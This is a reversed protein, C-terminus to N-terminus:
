RNELKAIRETLRLEVTGSLETIESRIMHRSDVIREDVTATEGEVKEIRRLVGNRGNVGFFAQYVVDVKKAQRWLYTGLGLILATNLAGWDLPPM